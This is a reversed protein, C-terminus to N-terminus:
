VFLAAASTMAFVGISAAAESATGAVKKILAATASATVVVLVVEILDAAASAM